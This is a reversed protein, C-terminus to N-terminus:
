CPNSARRRVNQMWSESMDSSTLLLDIRALQKDLLHINELLFKRNGAKVKEKHQAEAARLKYETVLRLVFDM